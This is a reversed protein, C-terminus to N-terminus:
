GKKRESLREVGLRVVELQQVSAVLVVGATGIEPDVAHLGLGRAEDQGVQESSRGGSGHCRPSMLM